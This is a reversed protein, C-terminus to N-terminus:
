EKGHQANPAQALFDAAAKGVQSEPNLARAKDWAERAADLDGLGYALIFGKTLWLRQHYPNKKIGKEVYSLGEKSDGIYHTSLGIDNYIEADDQRKELAKKYYVAAEAFQKFEFYADGVRLLLEPDDPREKLSAKLDELLAAHNVSQGMAAPGTRVSTAGKGADNGSKSCGAAVFLALVVVAVAAGLGTKRKLLRKVVESRRQAPGNPL